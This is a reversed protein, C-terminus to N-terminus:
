FLYVQGCIISFLIEVNEKFIVENKSSEEIESEGGERRNQPQIPRSVTM